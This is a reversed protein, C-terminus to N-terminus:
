TDKPQPQPEKIPPKPYQAVAMNLLAASAGIFGVSVYTRNVSEDRSAAQLGEIRETFVRDIAELLGKPCNRKGSEILSITSKDRDVKAALDSLSMGCFERLKRIREGITYTKNITEM